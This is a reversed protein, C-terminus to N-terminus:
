QVGLGQYIIYGRTHPSVPRREDPCIGDVLEYLRNEVVESIHPPMGNSVTLEYALSKDNNSAFGFILKGDTPHIQLAKLNLNLNLCDNNNGLVAPLCVFLVHLEKMVIHDKFYINKFIVCLM